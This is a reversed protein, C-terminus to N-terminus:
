ASKKAPNITGIFSMREFTFEKIDEEDQFLKMSITGPLGLSSQGVDSDVLCISINEAILKKLLYKALTTKGSDTSGTIMVPGKHLLLEACINEWEPEPIIVM